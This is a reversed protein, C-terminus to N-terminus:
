VFSISLCHQPFHQPLELCINTYHMLLWNTVVSLDVNITIKLISNRSQVRFFPSSKILTAPGDNSHTLTAGMLRLSPRIAGMLKQQFCPDFSLKCEDISIGHSILCRPGMLQFEELREQTSNALIKCFQLCRCWGIFKKLYMVNFKLIGKKM